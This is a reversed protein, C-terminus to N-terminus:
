KNKKSYRETFEAADLASVPNIRDRNEEGECYEAFFFRGESDVYLERARGDNYKNKGDAYFNNAIADSMATDYMVKDVVGKVRRGEGPVHEKIEKDTGKRFFKVDIGIADMILLFEDARMSNRVLRASLQQPSWGILASTEAQTKGVAKLCASLIDKSSMIDGGNKSIDDYYEKENINDVMNENDITRKM